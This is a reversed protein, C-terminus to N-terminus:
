GNNDGKEWSVLHLPVVRGPETRAGEQEDMLLSRRYKRQCEGHMRRGSIDTVEEATIPLRCWPCFTM